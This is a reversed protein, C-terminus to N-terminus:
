GLGDFNSPLDLGGFMDALDSIEKPVTKKKVDAQPSGVVSQPRNANAQIAEFSRDVTPKVPTITKGKAERVLDLISKKSTYAELDAKLRDVDVAGTLPNNYEPFERAVEILQARTQQEQQQMTMKQTVRTELASSFWQDRKKQYDAFKKPDFYGDSIFDAEPEVVDQKAPSEYKNVFPQVVNLLQKNTEQLHQVALELKQKELLAKDRESQWTRRATEEETLTGDPNQTSSAKAVQAAETVEEAEPEQEFQEEETAQPPTAPGEDSPLGVETEVASGGGGPTEISKYGLAELAAQDSLTKEMLVYGEKIITTKEDM